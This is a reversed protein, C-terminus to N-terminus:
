LRVIDLYTTGNYCYCTAADDFRVTLADGSYLEMLCTFGVSRGGAGSLRADFAAMTHISDKLITIAGLSDAKLTLNLQYLGNAPVHLPAGAAGGALPTALGFGGQTQAVGGFGREEGASFNVTGGDLFASAAPRAPLRVLGNSPDISLAEHWVSGDASVKISFGDDGALGMEARGSWGSQFVLSATDSTGAKNITMRHDDSQATFLSADSAVTLRNTASAAANIGVQILNDQVSPTPPPAWGAPGFIFM